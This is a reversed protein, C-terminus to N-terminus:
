KRRGRPPRPARSGGGARGAKQAFRSFVIPPEATFFMAEGTTPHKFGLTMAHLALRNSPWGLSRALESKYRRDGLVPHGAEAFHVRIQNRRGTELTVRVLSTHAYEKEVRYHTVALKGAGEDTTSYQDLDPATALFSRFTGEKEKLHGAVVALYVREAKHASFQSKLQDATVPDKAFVLLGSTDRDLRHVIEIRKRRPGGRNIYEIIEGLLNEGKADDTPVSLVGAAKEVVMLDDDEYVLKFKRTRPKPRAHYRRHPDWTVSVRDGAGVVQGGEVCLTDNVRVAGHDILGRIQARSLETLQQVILDVRGAQADSVRTERTELPM